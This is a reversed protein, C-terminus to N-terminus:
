FRRLGARQVNSAIADVKPGIDIPVEDVRRKLNRPYLCRQSQEMESESNRSSLSSNNKRLTKDQLANSSKKTIIKTRLLNKSSPRYSIKVEEVKDVSDLSERGSGNKFNMEAKTNSLTQTKPDFNENGAIISGHSSWDSLDSQMELRKERITKAELNLKRVAKVKKASDRYDLVIQERQDLYDESRQSEIHLPSARLAQSPRKKILKPKPSDSPKSPSQVIVPLSEPITLDQKSM